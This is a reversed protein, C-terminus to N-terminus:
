IPLNRIRIGDVGLIGFLCSCDEHSQIIDLVRRASQIVSMGKLRLLLVGVVEETRDRAAVSAFAKDSTM